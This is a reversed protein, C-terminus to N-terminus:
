ISLVVTSLSISSRKLKGEIDSDLMSLAKTILAYKTVDSSQSKHFLLMARQHLDTATHDRFTSPRLNNSAEIFGKTTTKAAM